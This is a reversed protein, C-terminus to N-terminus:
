AAEERAMHRVFGTVGLLMLGIVLGLASDPWEFPFLHAPPLTLLTVVIGGFIGAFAIYWLLAIVQWPRLPRPAPSPQDEAEPPVVPDGDKPTVLPPYVQGYPFEFYGIRKTM